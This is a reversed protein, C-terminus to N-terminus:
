SELLTVTVGFKGAAAAENESANASGSDSDLPLETEEIRLYAPSVHNCLPWILELAAYAADESDFTLREERGVRKDSFILENGSAYIKTPSTQIINDDYFIVFSPLLPEM